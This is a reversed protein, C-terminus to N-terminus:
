ESGIWAASRGRVPMLAAGFQVQHLLRRSFGLL